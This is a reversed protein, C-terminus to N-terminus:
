LKKNKEMCFKNKKESIGKGTRYGDKYEHNMTETSKQFGMYNLILDRFKRRAQINELM